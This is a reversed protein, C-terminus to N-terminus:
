SSWPTSTKVLRVLVHAEGDGRNDGGEAQGSEGVSCVSAGVRSFFIMAPCLYKKVAYEVTSPYTNYLNASMPLWKTRARTSTERSCTELSWRTLRRISTFLLAPSMSDTSLPRLNLCDGGNSVM